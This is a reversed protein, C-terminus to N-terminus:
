NNVLHLGCGPSDLPCASDVLGCCHNPDFGLDHFQLLIYVGHVIHGCVKAKM